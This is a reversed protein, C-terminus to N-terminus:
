VGNTSSKYMNVYGNSRRGTGILMSLFPGYDDPDRRGKNIILWAWENVTALAAFVLAIWALMNRWKPVAWFQTEGQFLGTAALPIVSRSLWVAVLSITRLILWDFDFILYLLTPTLNTYVSFFAAQDPARHAQYSLTWFVTAAVFPLTIGSDIHLLYRNSPKKYVIVENTIFVKRILLPIALFAVLWGSAASVQYSSLSDVRSARYTEDGAALAVLTLPILYFIFRFVKLYDRDFSLAMFWFIYLMSLAAVIIISTNITNQAMGVPSGLILGLTVITWATAMSPGPWRMDSHVSFLFSPLWVLLLSLLLLAFFESLPSTGGISAASYIAFQKDQFTVPLDVCVTSPANKTYRGDLM